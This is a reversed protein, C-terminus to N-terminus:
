EVVFLFMKIVIDNRVRTAGTYLVVALIEGTKVTVAALHMEEVALSSLPGTSVVFSVRFFASLVTEFAATLPRSFPPIYLSSCKQIARM